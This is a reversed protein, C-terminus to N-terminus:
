AMLEAVKGYLDTGVTALRAAIDSPLQRQSSVRPFSMPMYASNKDEPYLAEFEEVNDFKDRGEVNQPIFSEAPTGEALMLAHRELEVHYYNFTETEPKVQVISVDNILAGANALVGDVLLAHDPSVYLDRAPLSNGFAGAKIQVPFTRFVHADAHSLTQRGIWKIREPKGDPTQVEDGIELDEVRKEGEVTQILTGTLFCEPTPKKDVILNPNKESRQASKGQPIAGFYEVATGNPIDNLDGGGNYLAGITDSGDSLLVVDGNNNLTPLGEFFGAPPEGNYLGVVTVAEGPQIITGDPFTFPFGDGDGITWGSVDVAVESSNFLEVFEDTRRVRGDGDTDFGKNGKRNKRKIPNALIENIIIGQIDLAM